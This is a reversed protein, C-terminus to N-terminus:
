PGIEAYGSACPVLVGFALPGTADLVSLSVLNRYIEDHPARSRNRMVQRLPGPTFTRLLSTKGAGPSSRLVLASNAFLDSPLLSLVEPAFYRTFTDDPSSTESTRIAFANRAM